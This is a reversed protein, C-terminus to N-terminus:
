EITYYTTNRKYKYVIDATFHTDKFMVMNNALASYYNDFQIVHLTKHQEPDEAYGEAVPDISFLYRGSDSPRINVVEYDKLYDFKIITNYPAISGWPDCDLNAKDHGEVVPSFAVLPLRSYVAGSSLHATFLLPRNLLTTVAFIYCEQWEETDIGLFRPNIYAHTYPINYTSM